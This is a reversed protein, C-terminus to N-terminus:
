GREVAIVGDTADFYEAVISATLEHVM